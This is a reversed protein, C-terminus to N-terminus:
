KLKRNDFVMVYAKMFWRGRKVLKVIQTVDFDKIYKEQQSTEVAHSNYHERVYSVPDVTSKTLLAAAVKTVAALYLGTRGIGGMCGVYVEKGEMLAILGRIVGMKFQHPDPVDFDITPISIDCPQNIEAAMKVGIMMKPRDVYSGGYLAVKTGKLSLPLRNM